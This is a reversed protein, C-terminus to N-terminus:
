TDHWIKKNKIWMLEFGVAKFIGKDVNKNNLAKQADFIVKRTEFKYLSGAPLRKFFPLSEASVGGGIVLKKGHKLAKDALNKAIDFISNSNIHERTLGLSGTMDVRGLVIGTLNKAEPINLMEDINKYGTITETNIYFGIEEIEDKPFTM